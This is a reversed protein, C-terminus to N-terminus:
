GSDPLGLNGRVKPTISSLNNLTSASTGCVVAGTCHTTLVIDGLGVANSYISAGSLIVNGQGIYLGAGNNMYFTGGTITTQLLSVGDSLHVGDGAIKRGCGAAWSGTMQLIALAGSDVLIGHGGTDDAAFAHGIFLERNVGTVHVGNEFHSVSCQELQIGGTGGAIFVGASGPVNVSHDGWIDCNGTILGNWYNTGLDTTGGLKHGSFYVGYHRANVQCNDLVAASENELTIGDWFLVPQSDLAQLNGIRLDRFTAAHTWKTHIASGTTRSVLSAIQFNFFQLDTFALPAVPDVDPRADFVHGYDNKAQFVTSTGSGQITINGRNIIVPATLVFQGPPFYILGGGIPLKNIDSQIAATDDAVGDGTATTVRIASVASGNLIACVAKWILIDACDM